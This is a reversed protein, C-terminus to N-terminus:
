FQSKICAFQGSDVSRLDRWTKHPETASRWGSQCGRWGRSGHFCHSAVDGHPEWGGILLGENNEWQWKLIDVCERLMGRPGGRYLCKIVNSRRVNWWKTKIVSQVFLAIYWDASVTIHSQLYKKYLSGSEQINKNLDLWKQPSGLRTQLRKGWGRQSWLSAALPCNGNLHITRETSAGYSATIPM